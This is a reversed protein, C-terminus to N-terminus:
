GILLWFSFLDRTSFCLDEATHGRVCKCKQIWNNMREAQENSCMKDTGFGLQRDAEGGGQLSGM